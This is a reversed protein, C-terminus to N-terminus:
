QMCILDFRGCSVIARLTTQSHPKRNRIMRAEQLIDKQVEISLSSVGDKVLPKKCCLLLLM